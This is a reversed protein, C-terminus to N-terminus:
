CLILGEILIQKQGATKALGEKLLEERLAEGILVKVVGTQGGWIERYVRIKKGKPPMKASFPM